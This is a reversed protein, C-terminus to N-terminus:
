FKTKVKESLSLRTPDDIKLIGIKPEIKAKLQELENKKWHEIYDKPMDYECTNLIFKEKENQIDQISNAEENLLIRQREIQKILQSSRNNIKKKISIIM